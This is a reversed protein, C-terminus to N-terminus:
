NQRPMTLKDPGGKDFRKYIVWDSGMKIPKTIDGIDLVKLQDRVPKPFIALDVAGLYGGHDRSAAVSQKALAEFSMGNALLAYLSDAGEKRAMVLEGLYMVIPEQVQVIVAQRLWSAVPKNNQRAPQFKWLKVSQVALSDWETIGSSGVMSAEGVTGDEMVHLMVTFRLGTMPLTSPYPPLPAMSIVEPQDGTSQPIQTTGCGAILFMFLVVLLKKM